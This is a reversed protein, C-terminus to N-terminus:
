MCYQLFLVVTYVIAIIELYNSEPISKSHIFIGVFKQFILGM